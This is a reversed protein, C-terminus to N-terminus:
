RGLVDAIKLLEDYIEGDCDWKMDEIKAIVKNVMKLARDCAAGAIVLETQRADFRGVNEAEIVLGGSKTIARKASELERADRWAQWDPHFEHDNVSEIEYDAQRGDKHATVNIRASHGEGDFVCWTKGDASVIEWGQAELQNALQWKSANITHKYNKM